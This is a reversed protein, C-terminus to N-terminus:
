NAVAGDCFLGGIDRACDLGPPFPRKMEREPRGGTYIRRAVFPRGRAPRTIPRRFLLVRARLMWSIPKSRGRAAESQAPGSKDGKESWESARLRATGRSLRPGGSSIAACNRSIISRQWPRGSPVRLPLALKPFITRSPKKGSSLAGETSPRIDPSRAM